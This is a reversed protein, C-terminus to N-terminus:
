LFFCEFFASSVIKGNRKKGNKTKLTKKGNRKRMWWETGGGRSETDAYDALFMKFM